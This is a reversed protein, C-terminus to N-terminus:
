GRLGGPGCTCHALFFDGRIRPPAALPRGGWGVMGVCVCESSLCLYRLLCLRGSPIMLLRGGGAKGYDGLVVEHMHPNLSDTYKHMCGGGRQRRRCCGFQSPGGGGAPQLREREMCTRRRLKGEGRLGPAMCTGAIILIQSVNLFERFIHSLLLSRLRAVCVVM